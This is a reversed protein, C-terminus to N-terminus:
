VNEVEWYKWRGVFTLGFGIKALEVLWRNEGKGEGQRGEKGEKQLRTTCNFIECAKKPDGGLIEFLYVSGPPVAPFLCRPRNHALDWGGIYLPKGVAAAVLKLELEEVKGELNKGLFDPYWGNFFIAPSALYLKFYKEERGLCVANILEDLPNGEVEKYACARGEGGLQLVGPNKLPAFYDEVLNVEVLDVKVLFGHGKVLRVFEAMYLKGIEVTRARDKLEIGARQERVYLSGSDKLDDSALAVGALYNKLGKKTLWFGATDKAEKEKSWLPSVNWLLDFSFVKPATDPLPSMTFFEKEKRLLDLPCPFFVDDINPGEPTERLNALFPGLMHLHGFDNASGFIRVIEEVKEGQNNGQIHKAFLHFDKGIQALAHHLLLSRIAGQFTLPSPPFVSRARHIEGGVFPRSDRFLLVDLPELWLWM